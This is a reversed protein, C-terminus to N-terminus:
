SHQVPKILLSDVFKDELNRIVEEVELNHNMVLYVLIGDLSAILALTSGMVNHDAFRGKRIGREFLKRLFEEMEDYYKAFAEWTQPWALAKTMTLFFFNLEKQHGLWHRIYNEIYSKIGEDPNPKDIAEQVFAAIPECLKNNAYYLIEEKSKFHHYLGGKSIGAKGAIAEMSAGEYGKDLFVEIAANVIDEIRKEKPEWKSM